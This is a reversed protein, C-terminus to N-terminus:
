PASPDHPEDLSGLHDRLARSITGLATVQEATLQDLLHTRVGEVHAPAAADLAAFGAQTLTAFQGRKDEPCRRRRVWGREELRAIAHSLRSASYTSRVALEHMRLTRDPAESLRALLEYYALPMDSEHQLERDLQAFLLRTADLFARWIAQERDDLWRTETM